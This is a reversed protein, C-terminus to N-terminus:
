KPSMTAISAMSGYAWESIEYNDNERVGYENACRQYTVCLLPSFIQSLSSEISYVCSSEM